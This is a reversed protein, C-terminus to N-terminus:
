LLAGLSAGPLTPLSAGDEFPPVFPVSDTTGETAGVPAECLVESSGVDDGAGVVVGTGVSVGVM